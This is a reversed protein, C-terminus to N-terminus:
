RKKFFRQEAKSVIQKDTMSKTLKLVKFTASYAIGDNDIVIVMKGSRDIIFEGNKTEIYKEAM